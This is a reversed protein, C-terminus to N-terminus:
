ARHRGACGPSMAGLAAILEPGNVTARETDFDRVSLRGLTEGCQCVLDIHRVRRHQVSAAAARLEALETNDVVTADCVTELTHVWAERYLRAFNPTPLGAKDAMDEAMGEPLTATQFMPPAPLMLPQGGDVGPHQIAGTMAIDLQALRTDLDTM